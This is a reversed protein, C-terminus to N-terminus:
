QLALRLGLGITAGRSQLPADVLDSFRDIQFGWQLL